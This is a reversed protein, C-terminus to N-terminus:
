FLSLQLAEDNKRVSSIAPRSVVRGPSPHAPTKLEERLYAPVNGFPIDCGSPEASDPFGKGGEIIQERIEELVSEITQMNMNKRKAEIRLFLRDFECQMFHRKFEYFDIYGSRRDAIKGSLLRYIIGGFVQCTEVNDWTLAESKNLGGITLEM